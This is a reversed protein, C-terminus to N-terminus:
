SSPQAGVQDQTQAPPAGEREKGKRTRTMSSMPQPQDSETIRRTTQPPTLLLGGGSPAPDTASQSLRPKKPTSPQGPGEDKIASVVSEPSYHLGLFSYTKRPQVEVEDVETPVPSPPQPIAPVISLPSSQEPEKSPSPDHRTPSVDHERQRLGMEIDELRKKSRPTM